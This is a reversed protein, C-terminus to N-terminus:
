PANGSGGTGRTKSPNDPRNAAVCRVGKRPKRQLPDDYDFTELVRNKLWEKLIAKAAEESRGLEDTIVHGVWRDRSSQAPSYYSGTPHGAKDELGRDIRDWCMTLISMTIGDTPGAPKWPVLVGVEDGPIFGTGNNLTVTKKHFWRVTGRRSYNGKGDDFRVYSNREEVPVDMVLAEDETMDFFTCLIRAVGIMSGGGRSADADGAMASAYKRTHHVLLLSSATRRAVERWLVGAWKVESNSNEDGEFTEAFPDAVVFGIGHHAITRVLDEVLPTRVVSKSRADMKAIVISEPTEALFLKGALDAQTVGMEKAAACLRRRMEDLDDEANIVLVKEPKRPMWGGWEIGLAVAISMQLTLLSKGSGAPAVLMSMARKLLLGPVVWDRPPIRHEEIPFASQLPILKQPAKADAQPPPDSAKPPEKAKRVKAAEAIKSGWQGLAYTWKEMFLTLGRGERELGHALTEGPLPAQVAVNRLYDAWVSDRETAGPQEFAGDLYYGVLAAFILDRMYRERGDIRTGFSTFTPGTYDPREGAPAHSVGGHEAVLKEIEDMLWQPAVMIEIQGPARGDVWDYHKGSAHLSPPLVTFGGHGRIDINLDTSANSIMWGDPCQFFLQRGGGGTVQEWTELDMGNNHVACVGRYWNGPAHSKYTDLDLMIKRGSAEGMIAGMNGNQVFRGGPGYWSAFTADSVLEKQFEKWKELSPMKGHCPVVQLGHSRYWAAWEGPGAFDPDFDFM